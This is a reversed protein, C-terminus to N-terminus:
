TYVYLINCLCVFMCVYTCVCIYNCVHIYLIYMYVCVYVYMFICTSYQVHVTFTCSTCTCVLVYCVVYTWVHVICITPLLYVRTIYNYMYMNITWVCVHVTYICMYMIYYVCLVLKPLKEVNRGRSKLARFNKEWDSVSHCYREVIDDLDVSGLIVWEEFQVSSQRLRSFM